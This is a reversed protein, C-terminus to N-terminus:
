WMLCQTDSDYAVSATIEQRMTDIAVTALHMCVDGREGTGARVCVRVCVCACVRM